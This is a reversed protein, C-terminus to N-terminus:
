SSYTRRVLAKRGRGGRSQPADSVRAREDRGGVPLTVTPRAASVRPLHRASVPVSCEAVAMATPATCVATIFRVPMSSNTRMRGSM